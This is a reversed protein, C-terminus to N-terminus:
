RSRCEKGVRREESRLEGVRALEILAQREHQGIYQPAHRGCVWAQSWGGRKLDHVHDTAEEMQRRLCRRNPITTLAPFNTVLVYLFQEFSCEGLPVGGSPCVVQAQGFKGQNM